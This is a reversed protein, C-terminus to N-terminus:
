YGHRRDTELRPRSRWYSLQVSLALHGQPQTVSPKRLQLTPSAAQSFIARELPGMVPLIIYQVLQM